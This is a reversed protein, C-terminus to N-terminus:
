PSMRRTTRHARADPTPRHRRAAPARHQRRRAASRRRRRGSATSSRTSGHRDPARASRSTARPWRAALEHGVAGPLLMGTVVTVAASSASPPTRAAGPHVDPHQGARRARPPALLVRPCRPARRRRRPGDAAGAKRGSRRSGTACRPTRRWSARADRLRHARLIPPAVSSRCATTSAPSRSATSTTSSTAPRCCPAPRRARPTASTSSWPRPRARSGPSRPTAPTSSRAAPPPFTAVAVSGTNVM